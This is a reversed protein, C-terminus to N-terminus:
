RRRSREVEVRGGPGERLIFRAGSRYAGDIFADVIPDAILTDVIRGIERGGMGSHRAERVIRGRLAPDIEVAAGWAGLRRTIAAVRLDLVSGLASEDIPSFPVVADLRNRFEPPFHGRVAREVAGRSAAPEGGGEAGFGIARGDEASGLNSTLIVMAERASVTEGRGSTLAGDDILGLLMRSVSPAAKEIEDFLLVSRPRARLRTILQGDEEHGIYGPPAGVIRSIEHPAQYEGMDYRALASEAGVWELAIARALETKGVGTPGTFLFAAAPRRHDDIGIARRRIAAAVADIAAPQGVVRRALREGISRIRERETASVIAMPVGAREAIALELTERDIAGGGATADRLLDIASGPLGGPLATEALEIAAGVMAPAVEVGAETAWEAVAAAAATPALPRIAIRAARRRAPYTRLLLPAESSVVVQLAPDAAVPFLEPVADAIFLLGDHAKAWRSIATMAALRADDDAAMLVAAPLVAVPRGAIGAAAAIVSAKGVGRPGSVVLDSGARVAAVAEAVALARLAMPHAPPRLLAGLPPEVTGAPRPSELELPAVVAAVAAGGFPSDAIARLLSRPTAPQEITAASLWTRYARRLRPEDGEAPPLADIEDAAAAAGPIEPRAARLLAAAVRPGDPIPLGLLAAREAAATIAARAGSDLRRSERAGAPM